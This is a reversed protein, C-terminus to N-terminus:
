SNTSACGDRLLRRVADPKDQMFHRNFCKVVFIENTPDNERQALFLSSFEGNWLLNHLFVRQQHVGMLDADISGQRM